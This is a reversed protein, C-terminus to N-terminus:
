IKFVNKYGGSIDLLLTKNKFKLLKTLNNKSLDLVKLNPLNEKFAEENVYAIENSSINLCTLNTHSVNTLSIIKGENVSFSELRPFLDDKLSHLDQLTANRLHM